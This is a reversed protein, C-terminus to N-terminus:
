VADLEVLRRERNSITAAEALRLAALGDAGSPSPPTGNRVADIVTTIEARYSVMYRALFFDMLPAATFGARTGLQVTNEAVNGASLVGLSGHVEIRQDYGYTARRSNSIQAIKGSATVLTVAASYVDPVGALAPDFLASGIASVAVPEEGLLFRAMDFDHIMMDKFLGGSREVYELPPPAPDRSVIQVMEIEGVDGNAVRRRVAAFNPDFRRNFGLMLTANTEAVVALCQQARAVDLDIPKECFVAKGARAALEVQDSHVDTPSAILVADVNADAVIEEATAVAAGHLEALSAAAAPIADAVAVLAAGPTAAIAEAHVQGIRGAGFMGFRLPTASLDTM